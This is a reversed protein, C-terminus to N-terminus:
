APQEYYPEVPNLSLRYGHYYHPEVVDITVTNSEQGGVSFSIQHKGVEAPRYPIQSYPYFDFDTSYKLGDPLSQDTIQGRGGAPSVAILFVSVGVPVVAYQLWGGNAQIWLNNASHPAAQYQSPTMTQRELGLYLKGPTMSSINEIEIPQSIRSSSAPASPGASSASVQSSNIEIPGTVASAVQAEGASLLASLAIISLVAVSLAVFLRRQSM